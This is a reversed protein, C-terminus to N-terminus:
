DKIIKIIKIIRSNSLRLYYVGSYFESMDITKVVKSEFEEFKNIYLIRGSNDTITITIDSKIDALSKLHIHDKTPNPYVLINYGYFLEATGDALTVIVLITDSSSCGNVDLINVSYEYEGVDMNSITITQNQAGTSWSYSSFGAGADLTVNEGQCATYPGGLEVTPLSYFTVTANDSASCDNSNTVTVSYTGSQTISITQTSAGTSWSYSSFGAGADLTVSEGQCASFPGGLEVNPLTCYDVIIYPEPAGGWNYGNIACADDNDDVEKFGIAFWSAGARVKSELDNKCWTLLTLQKRGVTTGTQNISAYSGNSTNGIDNYLTARSAVFPNVTIEKILLIHKSSTSATNVWFAVTVSNINADDPISSIDFAAWGRFNNLFKSGAKIEGSHKLYKDVRGTWDTSNLPRCTVTQAICNTYSVLLLFLFFSIFKKM